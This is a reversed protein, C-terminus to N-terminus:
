VAVYYVGESLTKEVIKTERIRVEGKIIRDGSKYDHVKGM